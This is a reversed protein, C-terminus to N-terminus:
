QVKENIHNGLKESIEDTSRNQDTASAEAEPVKSQRLGSSAAFSLPVETLCKLIPRTVYPSM